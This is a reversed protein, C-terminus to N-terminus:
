EIKDDSDEKIKDQKNSKVIKETQLMVNQNQLTNMFIEPLIAINNM